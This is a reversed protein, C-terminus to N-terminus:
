SLFSPSLFFLNEFIGPNVHKFMNEDGIQEQEQEQKIKAM